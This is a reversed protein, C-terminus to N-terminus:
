KKKNPSEYTAINKLIIVKRYPAKSNTADYKIIIKDKLVKIYDISKDHISFTEIKGQLDKVTVWEVDTM